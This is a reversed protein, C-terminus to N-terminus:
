QNTPRRYIFEESSGIRGDGDRAAVRVRHGLTPVHGDAVFGMPVSGIELEAVPRCSTNVANMHWAVSEGSSNDYITLWRLCPVFRKYGILLPRSFTLHGNMQNIRFSNTCSSLLLLATFLYLSKMLKPSSRGNTISATIQM